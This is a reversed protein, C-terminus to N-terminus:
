IVTVLENAVYRLPTAVSFTKRNEFPFELRIEKYKEGRYPRELTLDNM